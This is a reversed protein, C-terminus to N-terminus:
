YLGDVQFVSKKSEMKKDWHYDGIRIRGSFLSIDPKLEMQPFPKRRKNIRKNKKKIERRRERKRFDFGITLLRNSQVCSAYPHLPYPRAINRRSFLGLAEGRGEGHVDSEM